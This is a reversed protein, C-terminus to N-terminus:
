VFSQGLDCSRVRAILLRSSHLRRAGRARSGKRLESWRGADAGSWGLEAAMWDSVVGSESFDAPLTANLM